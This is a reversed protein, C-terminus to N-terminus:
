KKKRNNLVRIVFQKLYEFDVSRTMNEFILPADNNESIVFSCIEFGTGVGCVTKVIFEGSLSDPAIIFNSVGVADEILITHNVVDYGKQKLEKELSNARHITEDVVNSRGLDGSRGGSLIGIKFPADFYSAFDKLNDVFKLIQDPYLNDLGCPFLFLPTKSDTLFASIRVLVESNTKSKFLDYFKSKDNESLNKLVFADYSFPNFDSDSNLSSSDFESFVKINFKNEFSKFSKYRYKESSLNLSFFSIESAQVESIKNNSSNSSCSM